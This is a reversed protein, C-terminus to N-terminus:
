LADKLLEARGLLRDSVQMPTLPLKAPERRGFSSFRCQIPTDRACAIRRRMGVIGESSSWRWWASNAWSKSPM